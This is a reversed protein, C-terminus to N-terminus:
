LPRQAHQEFARVVRVATPNGEFPVANQCKEGLNHFMPKPMAANMGGTQFICIDFLFHKTSAANTHM